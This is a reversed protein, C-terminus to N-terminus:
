RSGAGASFMLPRAVLNMIEDTSLYSDWDGDQPTRPTEPHRPHLEPDLLPTVDVAKRLQTRLSAMTSMDLEDLRIPRPADTGSRVQARVPWQVPAPQGDLEGGLGDVMMAADSWQPDAPEEVIFVLQVNVATISGNWHAIQKSM